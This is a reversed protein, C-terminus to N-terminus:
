RYMSLNTIHKSYWCQNMHLSIHRYIYIYIYIYEISINIQNWVFLRFKCRTPPIHISKHCMLLNRWKLIAINCKSRIWYKIPWAGFFLKYWRKLTVSNRLLLYLVYKFNVHFFHPKPWQHPKIFQIVDLLSSAYIANFILCRAIIM